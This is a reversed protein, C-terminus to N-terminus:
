GSAGAGFHRVVGQALFFLPYLGLRTPKLEKKTDHPNYLYYPLSHIHKNQFFYERRRQHSRHKHQNCFLIRSPQIKRDTKNNVIETTIM